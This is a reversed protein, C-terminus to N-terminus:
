LLQVETNYRNERVAFPQDSVNADFCVEWKPNRETSLTSTLTLSQRKSRQSFQHNHSSKFLKPTLKSLWTHLTTPEQGSSLNQTGGFRIVLMYLLSGSKSSRCPQYVMVSYVQNTMNMLRKSRIKSYSVGHLLSIKSFRINLLSTM